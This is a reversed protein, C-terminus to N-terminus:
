PIQLSDRYFFARESTRITVIFGKKQTTSVEIKDFDHANRLHQFTSRAVERGFEKFTKNALEADLFEVKLWYSSDYTSFAFPQGITVAKADYKHRYEDVLTELDVDFDPQPINAGVGTPMSLFKGLRFFYREDDRYIILTDSGHNKKIQDGKKLFKNLDSPSYHHNRAPPVTFKQQKDLVIRVISKSVDTSIIKGAIQTDLEIRPYETLLANQSTVM